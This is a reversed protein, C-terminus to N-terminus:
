TKYVRDVCDYMFTLVVGIGEVQQLRNAFIECVYMVCVYM